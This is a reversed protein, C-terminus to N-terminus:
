FPSLYPAGGDGSEGGCVLGSWSSVQLRCVWLLAEQHQVQRLRPQEAPIGRGSGPKASVTRSAAPNLPWCAAGGDDHDGRVASDERQLRVPDSRHQGRVLLGLQPQTRGAKHIWVARHWLSRLRDTHSENGSGACKEQSEVITERQHRLSGSHQLRLGRSGSSQCPQGEVVLFALFLCTLVVAKM